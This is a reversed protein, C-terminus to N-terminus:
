SGIFVRSLSTTTIDLFASSPCFLGGVKNLKQGQISIEGNSYAGSSLWWGKATGELGEGNYYCNLGSCKVHMEGEGTVSATEHGTRLVEIISPLLEQEVSCGSSCNSYTFHGEIVQPAGLGGVSTSLFLVDCEVTLFSALVKAKAGPITTDHVHTYPSCGFLDETCLQTNGAMASSADLFTMALSATLAALGFMKILKM